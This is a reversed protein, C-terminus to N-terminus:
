RVRTTPTRYVATVMTVIEEPVGYLMLIPAIMQRNIKNYAKELDLFGWYGDQGFELKRENLQRPIFLADTTGCGKRFGFPEEGLQENVILRIRADIIRELCKMLQLLLKIGRYNGCEHINGKKKFIPVLISELWDNPVRKGKWIAQMVRHVWLVGEDGLALIMELNVEDPGPAKGFKMKSIAKKVEELSMEPQPEVNAPATPIEASFPNEENLM